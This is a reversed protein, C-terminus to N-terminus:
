PLWPTMAERAAQSPGSSPNLQLRGIFAGMFSGFRMGYDGNAFTAEWTTTSSRMMAAALRFSERLITANIAWLYALDRVQADTFIYDGEAGVANSSLTSVMGSHVYNTYFADSEVFRGLAEPDGRDILAQTQEGLRGSSTFGYLGNIANENLPSRGLSILMAIRFREELPAIAQHDAGGVDAAEYLVSDRKDFIYHLLEHVLTTDPELVPECFSGENCGLGIGLTKSPWDYRGGFEWAEFRGGNQLFDKAALFFSRDEMLRRLANRFRENADIKRRYRRFVDDIQASPIRGLFAAYSTEIKLDDSFGGTARDPRLTSARDFLSNSGSPMYDGTAASRGPFRWSDGSYHIVTEDALLPCVLCCVIFVPAPISRHGM